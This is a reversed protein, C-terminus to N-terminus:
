LNYNRKMQEFLEQALGLGQTDASQEALETIASDKFYDVLKQNTADESEPVTKMMEKFVQELFYAEFTKCADMLEQESANSGDAKKIQNKLADNAANEVNSALYQEYGSSIGDM